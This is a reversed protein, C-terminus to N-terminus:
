KRERKNAIDQSLNLNAYNFAHKLSERLTERSLLSYLRRGYVYCCRKSYSTSSYREKKDARVEFKQGGIFPSM